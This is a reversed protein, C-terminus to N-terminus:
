QIDTKKMEIKDAEKQDKEMQCKAYRWLHFMMYISVIIVLLSALFITFTFM